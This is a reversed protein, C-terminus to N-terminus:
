VGGPIAALADKAARRFEDDADEAAERLASIAAIAGSGLLELTYVANLRVENSEDRLAEALEPIAAHLLPRSEGECAMDYLAHAALARARWYPDRRMTAVCLKIAKSPDAVHRVADVAQWRTEDDPHQLAEIWYSLPRGNWSSETVAM